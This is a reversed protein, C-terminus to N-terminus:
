NDDMNGRRCMDLIKLCVNQFILVQRVEGARTAMDQQQKAMDALGMLRGDINRPPEDEVMPDGDEDESEGDEHHAVPASVRPEDTDEGELHRIRQRVLRMYRESGMVNCSVVNGREQVQLRRWGDDDLGQLNKVFGGQQVLGYHIGIAYDLNMSQENSIVELNSDLATTRAFLQDIRQEQRYIYDDEDAVQNWCHNLDKSLKKWAFWATTAFGILLLSLLTVAVWLWWVERSYDRSPNASCMGYEAADVGPILPELGAAFAMKVIAKSVRQITQKTVMRKSAEEFEEQGVPEGTEASIAGMQNMLLFLRAKSLAKTGVDSCNLAAPVQGVMLEQAMVKEQIWLLQGALHRIKGVGQKSVLQRAAQNDTWQWHEVEDGVLFRLCVKIFIGDSCGSVMSHLESEASSLSIVKQTRSSGFVLSGNM